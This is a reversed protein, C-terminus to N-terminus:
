VWPGALLWAQWPGERELLPCLSSHPPSHPSPHPTPQETVPAWVSVAPSSFPPKQCRQVSSGPSPLVRPWLAKGLVRAGTRSSPATWTDKHLDSRPPLRGAQPLGLGRPLLPAPLLAPPLRSLVRHPPLIRLPYYYGAHTSGESSGPM